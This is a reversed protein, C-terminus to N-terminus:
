GDDRVQSRDLCQWGGAVPISEGLNYLVGDGHVASQEFQQLPISGAEELAVQRHELAHKKAAHRRLRQDHGLVLAIPPRARDQIVPVRGAVREFGRGSETDGM